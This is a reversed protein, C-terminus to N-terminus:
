KPVPTKRSRNAIRWGPQIQSRVQLKLKRLGAAAERIPRSQNEADVVIDRLFPPALTHLTKINFHGSREREINAYRTKKDKFGLPFTRVWRLTVDGGKRRLPELKLPTWVLLKDNVDRAARMSREAQRLGEAHEPLMEAWGRYRSAAGRELLALFRPTIEAPVASIYPALLEGFRPIVLESM